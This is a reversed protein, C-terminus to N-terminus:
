IQNIEVDVMYEYNNMMGDLFDQLTSERAMSQGDIVRVAVFDEQVTDDDRYANEIFNYTLEENDGISFFPFDSKEIVKEQPNKLNIKIM